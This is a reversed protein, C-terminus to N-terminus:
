PSSRPSDSSRRSPRQSSRTRLQPSPSPKRNRAAEAELKALDQETIPETNHSVAKVIAELIPHTADVVQGGLAWVHRNQEQTVGHFILVRGPKVKYLKRAPAAM